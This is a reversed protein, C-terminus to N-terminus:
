GDRHAPRHARSHPPRSAPAPAPHRTRRAPATSWPQRLLEAVVDLDRQDVLAVPKTKPKEFSSTINPRRSRRRRAGGTRAVDDLGAHPEHLGVIREISGSPGAPRSRRRSTRRRRAPPRARRRGGGPPSAPAPRPRDRTRCPPRRTRRGRRAPRSRRRARRDDADRRRRELARRRRALRRQQHVVEQGVRPSRSRESIASTIGSGTGIGGDGSADFASRSPTRRARCRTAGSGAPARARGPACPRGSRRRCRSATRGTGRRARRVAHGRDDGLRAHADVAPDGDVRDGELGAERADVRDAVDRADARRLGAHEGLALRRDDGVAIM